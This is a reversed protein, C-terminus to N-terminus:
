TGAATILHKGNKEKVKFNTIFFLFCLMVFFLPLCYIISQNLKDFHVAFMAYLPKSATDLM